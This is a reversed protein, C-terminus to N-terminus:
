AEVERHPVSRGLVFQARESIALRLNGRATDSFTRAYSVPEGAFRFDLGRDTHAREASELESFAIALSQFVPDESLERVEEGNPDQETDITEEAVSEAIKRADAANM